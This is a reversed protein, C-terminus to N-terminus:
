IKRLPTGTLCSPSTRLGADVTVYWRQHGPMILLTFSQRPAVPVKFMEPRTVCQRSLCGSVQRNTLRSSTGAYPNQEGAGRLPAIGPIILVRRGLPM